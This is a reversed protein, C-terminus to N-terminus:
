ITRYSVGLTYTQWDSWIDKLNQAQTWGAEVALGKWVTAGGSIGIETTEDELQDITNGGALISSDITSKTNIYSVQVWSSSPLGIGISASLKDDEWDGAQDALRDFGISAWAGKYVASVGLGLITGTTGKDVTGLLYGKNTPVDDARDAENGLAFEDPTTPLVLGVTASGLIEVPGSTYDSLTFIRNKLSIQTDTMAAAEYSDQALDVEERNVSKHASYFGVQALWPLPVGLEGYVATAQEQEELVVPSNKSERAQNSTLSVKVYYENPSKVWGSALSQGSILLGSLGVTIATTKWLIQKTM